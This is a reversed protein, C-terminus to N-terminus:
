ENEVKIISDLFQVLLVLALLVSGLALIFIFPYIPIPLIGTIRYADWMRMAYVSAGWAIFAFLGTGFLYIVPDLIAQVKPPFRSTLLDISIHGGRTACYAVAFSVVVVLMVKVVEMSWPLPSNFIRRLCVDAVLLLVMAMLVVMVLNNLIRILQFLPKKLYHAGKRSSLM